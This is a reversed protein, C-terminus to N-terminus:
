RARRTPSEIVIWITSFIEAVCFLVLEISLLPLTAAATVASGPSEAFENLRALAAPEDLLVNAPAPVVAFLLSNVPVIVATTM